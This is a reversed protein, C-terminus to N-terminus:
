KFRESTELAIHAANQEADKKTKGFGAGYTVGEIMVEIHFTGNYQGKVIYEPLPVKNAQCWRMLQDKYNDDELSAELSDFIKSFAAFVFTKAHIIGIDLYIAGVLAEFVDELINANTNWKNRIGKDDMLVWSDLGLGKAIDCLTKGRVLKTRAKTLFGEQKEEFRDFLFKTIIFGLVSDGMFELTEYSGDLGKYKKLASKHTFARQYLKENKIKTGVIMELAKRDLVPPDILEEMMM